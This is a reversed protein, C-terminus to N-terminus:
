NQLLYWKLTRVTKTKRRLTGLAIYSSCNYINIHITVYIYEKRAKTDIASCYGGLMGMREM